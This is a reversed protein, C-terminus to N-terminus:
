FKDSNPEFHKPAKIHKRRLAKILQEEKGDNDQGEATSGEVDEKNNEGIENGGELQEVSEDGDETEAYQQLFKTVTSPGFVSTSPPGNQSKGKDAGSQAKSSSAEACASTQDPKSM